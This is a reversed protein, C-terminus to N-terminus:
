FVKNQVLILVDLMKIKINLLSYKKIKLFLAIQPIPFMGEVQIDSIFGGFEDGIVPLIEQEINLTTISVM